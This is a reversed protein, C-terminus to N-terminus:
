LYESKKVSELELLKLKRDIGGAYGTLSGNSGIVRHCPILISIPNHGIARGVAQCSISSVKRKQALACAIDKYTRVEGYPISKLIQWVEQRFPTGRASLPIDEVSPNEGQFYLDLWAIVKEILSTKKEVVDGEISHFFYKQGEFYLGIVQEEDCVIFITGLSSLYPYSYNM